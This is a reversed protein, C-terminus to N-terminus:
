FLDHRICLLSGWALGCAVWALKRQESLAVLLLWIFLLATVIGGIWPWPYILVDFLWLVVLGCALWSFRGGICRGAILGALVGAGLHFMLGLVRTSLVSPGAVKWLAAIILFMGPPYNAYFDRHPTVGLLISNAGSLLIGEDYFSLSDLSARASVWLGAAIFGVGILFELM